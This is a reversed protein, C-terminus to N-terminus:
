RAASIFAAEGSADQNQVCFIHRDQWHQQGFGQDKLRAFDTPTMDKM